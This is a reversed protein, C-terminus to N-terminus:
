AGCLGPFTAAVKPGETRQGLSQYTEGPPADGGDGQRAEAVGVCLSTKVELATHSRYLGSLRHELGPNPTEPGEGPESTLGREGARLGAPPPMASGARHHSRQLLRSARFHHAFHSASLQGTAEVQSQPYSHEQTAAHEPAAAHQPWFSCFWSPPPADRVHQGGPGGVRPRSPEGPHLKFLRQLPLQEEAQGLIPIM